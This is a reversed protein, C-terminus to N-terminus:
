GCFKCGEKGLNNLDELTFIGTDSDQLTKYEYKKM